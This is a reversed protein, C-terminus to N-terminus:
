PALAFVAPAFLDFLQLKPAPRAAFWDLDRAPFGQLDALAFSDGQKMMRDISGPDAWFGAAPADAPWQPGRHATDGWSNLIFAGPKAGGRVGCILMCHAWTGRAACFGDADRTGPTGDRNAFGVNSCVAVPYGQSVARQVDAWSSVLATGKVPHEIAKAEIDDPVGQAGFQRARAPDFTSLDASPYAQMPVVGYKRVWERAWAGVSGDGRLRGGGVEVRSGGYIVEVSVPKFEERRGGTVIQVAATVDTGHKWGCGVCCGVDRQNVNPYWPDTEGRGAARRVQRWLFADPDPGLAVKGAPTDGFVTVPFRALSEKVAQPDNAWGTGFTGEDSQIADGGQFVDPPPPPIPDGSRFALVASVVWGAVAIVAGAIKLYNVWAPVPKPEPPKVDDAM